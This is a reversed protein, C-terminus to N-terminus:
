VLRWLALWPAKFGYGKGKRRPPAKDLASAGIPGLACGWLVRLHPTTFRRSSHAILNLLKVKGLQLATLPHMGLVRQQITALAPCQGLFHLATEEEETCLPCISSDKVGLKLHRNLALDM